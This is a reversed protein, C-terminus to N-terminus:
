AARVTELLVQRLGDLRSIQSLPEAIRHSSSIRMVKAKTVSAGLGNAIDFLEGGLKVQPLRLEDEIITEEICVLPKSLILFVAGEPVDGESGNAYWVDSVTRNPWIFNANNSM